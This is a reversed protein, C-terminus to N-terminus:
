LLTSGASSTAGSTYREDTNDRLSRILNHTKQIKEAQKKVISLFDAPMDSALADRYNKVAIDEGREAEELIAHDNKGSIASKIDIWGRHMAGSVSGSKEPSGGIRAVEVQLESAFEARQRSYENFLQKLDARQVGGAASRFGEEGDKCTEILGNLTSIYDKTTTSSM